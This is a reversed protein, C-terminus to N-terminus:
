LVGREREGVLEIAEVTALGEELQVAMSTAGAERSVVCRVHVFDDM